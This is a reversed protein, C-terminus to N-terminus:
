LPTVVLCSLLDNIYIENKKNLIWSWLIPSIPYTCYINVDSLHGAERVLKSVTQRIISLNQTKSLIASFHTTFCSGASEAVSKQDDDSSSIVLVTQPIIYDTGVLIFTGSEDHLKYPLGLSGSHCCDLVFCVEADIECRSIVNDRIKLMSYKEGSPLRIISSQKENDKEGHGTYYVLVRNDGVDMSKWAKEMDKVSYVSIWKPNNTRVGEKPLFDIIKPSVEDRILSRIVQDSFETVDTLIYIMPNSASIKEYIRYIDLLVSQISNENEYQFGILISTFTFYEEDEDDSM